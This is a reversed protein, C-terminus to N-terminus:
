TLDIVATSRVSDSGGGEDLIERAVYTHLGLIEM